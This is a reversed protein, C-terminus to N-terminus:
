QINENRFSKPLEITTTQSKGYRDTLEVKLKATSSSPVVYFMHSNQVAQYSTSVLKNNKKFYPAETALIHVPDKVFVHKVALESDEETVKIKVTKMNPDAEFVNLLVANEPLSSYLNSFSFSSDFSVLSQVSSDSAWYSKVSNMDYARMMYRDSCGVVKYHAEISTGDVELIDYGAPSGDVAINYGSLAGSLWLTGGLAPLKREIMERTALNENKVDFYESIHSHGTYIFVKSFGKLVNLLEKYNNGRETAYWKTGNWNWMHMPVHAGIIIPTETGVHSLDEKLWTLQEQDIAEITTRNGTGDSEFTVNDISIFHVAGINMSYYTPGFYKRYPESGNLDAKEGSAKFDYDHNGIVTFFPCAFDSVYDHYESPGFNNDYWFVDWTQDGMAMSYVPNKASTVYSKVENKFAVAQDVDKPNLGNRFQWDASMIFSYKSQNVPVLNFDFKEQVTVSKSKLSHWYEPFAKTNSTCEYGSPTVIYVVGYTKSSLLEYYGEADTRTWNFGDTVYVGKLGTGEAKVYGSVNYKLAPDSLNFTTKGLKQLKKGRVISVNYEISNEIKDSIIFSCESYSVNMVNCSVTEKGEAEFMFVDGEEFGQGIVRYSAGKEAKILSPISCNNIFKTLEYQEPEKQEKEICGVFLLLACFASIIRFAKV